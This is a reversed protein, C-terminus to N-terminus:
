AGIRELESGIEKVAGSTLEEPTLWGAKHLSEILRICILDRVLAWDAFGANDEAEFVQIYEDFNFLLERRDLYENRQVKVFANRFEGPRQSFMIARFFAKDNKRAIYVALTDAFIRIREVRDPSMGLVEKLFLDTLDWSCDDPREISGRHEALLHRRVFLRARRLDVFGEAYVSLLDALVPNRSRGPGALAPSSKSKSRIKSQERQPIAWGNALLKEWAAATTAKSVERFFRVLNSPLTFIELSPEQGLSSLWYVHISAPTEADRTDRQKRVIDLLDSAILSFAAKADPYKPRKKKTDWSAQERALDESPGEQNPLKGAMALSLLRLNDEVFTRALGLTLAPDDSHAVLLKGESRRGGMPLTQLATLYPGSIFLGGAAFPFFNLVGKGTLLPMQGRHILHTAAQGSFVCVQGKAKEDPVARHARLVRNAYRKRSLAKKDGSGPQVYESNMFVCTLYSSLAGSFYYREMEDAASDLDELTLLAPDNKGSMVCLAAIGVDVLAHGTWDILETLTEAGTLKLLYHQTAYL